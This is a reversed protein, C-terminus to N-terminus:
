QTARIKKYNLNVFNRIEFDLNLITDLDPNEIKNHHHLSEYIIKEIDLFKIEGNLFLKVAEENSSNFVTTMSGGSKGSEFAFKVCPYREFDLKSFNLSKIKDFDLFSFNNNSIREPYTLAYQIPNRMDPTGLQAMITTDSFEVMSHIISERHLVVKIKEYDIGFLFHAEIIELGKNVMTASDVTIKAGMKWNPHNLTEEITVNKLEDRTKDRFSGGSATLLIKNIQKKNEGNLCQFIASHESDIPILKVEYKKIKENIIHGATVLTEKNALAINKGSEIARITPLLGINGVLSNIIVDSKHFTAVELLGENGYTFKINKYESSLIECDSKDKVCVLEPSFDKLIKRLENINKGVSIANLKFHEKNNKIVDIAQIGISGTAGLISVNKM